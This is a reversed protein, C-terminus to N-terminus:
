FVNSKKSVIKFGFHRLVRLATDTTFNKPTPFGKAILGIECVKKPPYLRNKWDISFKKSREYISFQYGNAILQDIFHLANELDKRKM